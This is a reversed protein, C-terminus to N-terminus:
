ADGRLDAAAGRPAAPEPRLPQDIPTWAPDGERCWWDADKPPKGTGRVPIGGRKLFWIPRQDMRTRKDLGKYVWFFFIRPIQNTTIARM